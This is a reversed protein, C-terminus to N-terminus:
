ATMNLMSKAQIRMSSQSLIQDMCMNINEETSFEEKFYRIAHNLLDLIMINYGSVKLTTLQFIGSTRYKYLHVKKANILQIINILIVDLKISVLSNTM